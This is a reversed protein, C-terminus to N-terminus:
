DHPEEIHVVVDVVGELNQKLKEEVAYAIKHGEEVSLCGPVQVHLDLFIHDQMGRSRIKHCSLVGDVSSVLDSVSTTDLAVADVLTGLNSTIIGYGAKFIAVVII